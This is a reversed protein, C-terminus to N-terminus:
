QRSSILQLHGPVMRCSTPSLSEDCCLCANFWSVTQKLRTTTTFVQNASQTLEAQRDTFTVAHRQHLWLFVNGTKMGINPRGIQYWVLISNHLQRDWRTLVRWVCTVRGDVGPCVTVSIPKQVTNRQSHTNTHKHTRPTHGRPMLSPFPQHLGCTNKMLLGTFAGHCKWAGSHRKVRQIQWFRCPWLRLRRLCIIPVGDCQCDDYYVCPIHPWFILWPVSSM